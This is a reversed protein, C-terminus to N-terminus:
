RPQNTWNERIESLEKIMYTGIQFTIMTRLKIMYNNLDDDSPYTGHSSLNAITTFAASLSAVTPDLKKNKVLLSVYEHIKKTEGKTQDKNIEESPNTDIGLNECSLKCAEQLLVRLDRLAHAYKKRDYLSLFDSYANQYKKTFTYPHPRLLIDPVDDFKKSGIHQAETQLFEILDRLDLYYDKRMIEIESPIKKILKEIENIDRSFSDLGGVCLFFIWTPDPPDESRLDRSTIPSFALSFVSAYSEETSYQNLGYVHRFKIISLKKINERLGNIFISLELPAPHTSIPYGYVRV